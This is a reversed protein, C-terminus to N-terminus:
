SKGKRQAAKERYYAFIGAEAIQQADTKFMGLEQGILRLALQKDHLVLELSSDELIGKAKGNKRTDKRVTTRGKVSKIARSIEGLQKVNKIRVSGDELVDM